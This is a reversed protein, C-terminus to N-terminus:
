GNPLLLVCDEVIVGGDSNGEESVIQLLRDFANEFAVIKQINAHGKTLKQLLLLTDNRIVERSDSLLDMLKSVGMPNTLIQEQIDKVRNSLLATMLKVTPWRVHFDYEDLLDLVLSVNDCNKIFIETFQDALAGADAASETTEEEDGTEQSVVNVLTDVAYGVTETDSRDTQLVEVLAAMAQAGVELKFKKSLAKLARVADRRDDLLTSTQVRDVLREVTEAGSPQGGGQQAGLVNKLSSKFYEM